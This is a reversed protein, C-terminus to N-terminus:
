CMPLYRIQDTEGVDGAGFSVAAKDNAFISGDVIIAVSGEVTAAWYFIPWKPCVQSDEGPTRERTIAGAGPNCRAVSKAHLCRATM